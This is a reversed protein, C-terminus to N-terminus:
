KRVGEVHLSIEVTESAKGLMGGDKMVYDSLNLTTTGTFGTRYGGWPDDGGGIFAANIVVPKTIGRLTFDGTIKATGEGTLTIGTSKFSAAPFTDTDFFRPSRLHKDREAHNTDLSAVDINVSVSSKDPQAPDYEYSGDFTNFRGTLWSYGLHKVQFLISAHMGRTDIQYSDAQALSAQFGTALALGLGLTKIRSFKM